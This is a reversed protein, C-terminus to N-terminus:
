FAVKKWTMNIQINTTNEGILFLALGDRDQENLNIWESKKMSDGMSSGDVSTKVHNIQERIARIFQWHRSIVDEKSQSKDQM